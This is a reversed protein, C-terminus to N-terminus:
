GYHGFRIVTLGIDNKVTNNTLFEGKVRVGVSV